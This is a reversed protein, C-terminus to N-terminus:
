NGIYGLIVNEGPDNNFDFYFEKLNKYDNKVEDVSRTRMVTSIYNNVFSEMDTFIFNDGM